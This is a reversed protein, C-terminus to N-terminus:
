RILKCHWLVFSDLRKLHNLLPMYCIRWKWTCVDNRIVGSSSNKTIMYNINWTHASHMSKRLSVLFLLSGMELSIDVLEVELNPEFIFLQFYAILWQIICAPLTMGSVVLVLGTHTWCGCLIHLWRFLWGGEYLDM